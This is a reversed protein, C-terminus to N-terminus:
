SGGLGQWERIFVRNLISWFPGGTQSPITSHQMYNCTWTNNSSTAVTSNFEAARSHMTSSTTSVTSTVENTHKAAKM